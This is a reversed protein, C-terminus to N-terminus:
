FTLAMAIAHAVADPVLLDPQYTVLAHQKYSRWFAGCLFSPTYLQSVLM